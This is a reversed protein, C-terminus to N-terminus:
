SQPDNVNQLVGCWPEAKIAYVTYESVYFRITDAIKALETRGIPMLDVM